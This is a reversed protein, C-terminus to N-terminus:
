TSLTRRAEDAGFRELRGLLERAAGTDIAQAARALAARPSRERGSVELALAAGLAGLM